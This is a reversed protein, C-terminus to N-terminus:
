IATHRIYRRFEIHATRVHCLQGSPPARCDGPSRRVAQRFWRPRNAFLADDTARVRRLVVASLGVRGFRRIFSYHALLYIASVVFRTYSM